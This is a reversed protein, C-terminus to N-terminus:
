EGTQAHACQRCQTFCCMGVSRPGFVLWGGWVNYRFPTGDMLQVALAVSPEKLYTVLADGKPM